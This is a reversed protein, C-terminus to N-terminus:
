LISVIAVNSSAICGYVNKINTRNNYRNEGKAFAKRLSAINRTLLKVDPYLSHTQREEEDPILRRRDTLEAEKKNENINTEEKNEVAMNRQINGQDRLVYQKGLLSTREMFKKPTVHVESPQLDYMRDGIRINGNILIDCQGSSKKVCRATMFAGNEIDQYYAVD